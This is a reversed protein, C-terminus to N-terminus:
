PPRRHCQGASSNPWSTRWRWKWIHPLPVRSIDPLRSTSSRLLSTQSLTAAWVWQAPFPDLCWRTITIISGQPLHARFAKLTSCPWPFRRQPMKWLDLLACPLVPSRKLPCRLFPRWIKHTAKRWIDPSTTAVASANPVVRACSTGDARTCWRTAGWMRALSSAGAAGNVSISGKEYWLGRLHGALTRVWTSSYHRCARSRRVVSRVPSTVVPLPPMRPWTADLVWALTQLAKRMGRVATGAQQPRPKAPPQKAPRQWSVNEWMYPYNELLIDSCMQSIGFHNYNLTLFYLVIIFRMTKSCPHGIRNRSM